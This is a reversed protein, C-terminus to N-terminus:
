ALMEVIRRAADEPSIGDTDVVHDAASEYAPERAALLRDFSRGGELLPRGEGGGLRARLTAPSARLYVIPGAERLAAYNRLQLVAGGGCAIVRGTGVSARAVTEAERARFGEEGEAALIEPVPRGAEIAVMEDTDLAEFGLLGALARGVETKGAGMFGILVVNRPAM